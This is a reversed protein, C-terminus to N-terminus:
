ELGQSTTSPHGGGLKFHRNLREPNTRTSRSPADPLPPLPAQSPPLIHGGKRSLINIEQRLANAEQAQSQVLQYLRQREDEEAHRRGQFQTGQCVCVVCPMHSELKPLVNKGYLICWKYYLMGHIM